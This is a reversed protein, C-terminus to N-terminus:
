LCKRNTKKGKFRWRKKRKAKCKAGTQNSGEADSKTIYYLLKPRALRGTDAWYNYNPKVRRSSKKNVTSLSTKRASRKPASLYAKLDAEDGNGVWEELGDICADFDAPEMPVLDFTGDVFTSTNAKVACEHMLEYLDSVSSDTPSVTTCGAVLLYRAGHKTRDTQEDSVVGYITSNDSKECKTWKNANGSATASNAVVVTALSLLLTACLRTALTEWLKLKSNGM